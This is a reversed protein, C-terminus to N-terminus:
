FVTIEHLSQQIRQLWLKFSGIIHKMFFEYQLDIIILSLVRIVGNIVSESLFVFFVLLSFKGLQNFFLLGAIWILEHTWIAMESM